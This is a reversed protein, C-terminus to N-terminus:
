IGKLPITLNPKVDATQESTEDILDSASGETHVMTINYTCSSLLFLFPIAIEKM